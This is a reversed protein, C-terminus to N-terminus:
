LLRRWGRDVTLLFHTTHLSTYTRTDEPLIREPVEYSERILESIDVTAHSSRDSNSLSAQQVTPPLPSDKNTVSDFFRVPLSFGVM